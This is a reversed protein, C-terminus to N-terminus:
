QENDEEKNDPLIEKMKEKTTCKMGCNSCYSNETSLIHKCMPCNLQM